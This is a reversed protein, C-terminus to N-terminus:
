IEDQGIEIVQKVTNIINNLRPYKAQLSYIIYCSTSNFITFDKYIELYTGLSKQDNNLLKFDKIDKQAMEFVKKRFKPNSNFFILKYMKLKIKYFDLKLNEFLNQEKLFAELLQLINFIDFVINTKSALSTLMSGQRNTRYYYLKEPLLNIKKALFLTQFHFLFDEFRLNECFKINNKVLFERRFLKNAASYNGNCIESNDKYTHISFRNKNNKWLETEFFNQQNVLKTSNDFTLVDFVVIDSNCKQTIEVAKEFLNNEVWDDGDIFIVYEGKALELGKNRSYGVGRNEHRYYKVRSDTKALERVIESTNDTSGDDICIIEIDNYTQYLLSKLCIKIYKELNYATVIASIM